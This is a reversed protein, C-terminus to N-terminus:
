SKNVNREGDALMCNLSPHGSIRLAACDRANRIEHPLSMSSVSQRHMAPLYSGTGIGSTSRM